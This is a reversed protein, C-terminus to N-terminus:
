YKIFFGAHQYSATLHLEQGLKLLLVIGAREIACRKIKLAAFAKLVPQHHLDCNSKLTNPNSLTNVVKVLSKIILIFSVNIYPVKSIDM